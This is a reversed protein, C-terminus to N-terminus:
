ETGSVSCVKNLLSTQHDLYFTSLMKPWNFKEKGGFFSLNPGREMVESIVKNPCVIKVFIVMTIHPWQPPDLDVLVSM